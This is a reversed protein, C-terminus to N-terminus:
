WPLYAHYFIIKIPCIAFPTWVVGLYAFPTGFHCTADAGEMFPM